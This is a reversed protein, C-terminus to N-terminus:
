FNIYKIPFKEGCFRNTLLVDFCLTREWLREYLLVIVYPRVQEKIIGIAEVHNTVTAGERAATLAIALNM